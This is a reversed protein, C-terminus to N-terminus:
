MELMKSFVRMKRELALVDARYRPSKKYRFVRDQLRSYTQQPTAKLSALFTASLVGPIDDLVLHRRKDTSIDAENLNVGDRQAKIYNTLADTLPLSM